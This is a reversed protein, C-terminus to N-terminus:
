TEGALQFNIWNSLHSFPCEFLLCSENLWHVASVNNPSVLKRKRTIRKRSSIRMNTIEDFVGLGFTQTLPSEAGDFMAYAGAIQIWQAGSASFLRARAEVFGANTQAEAREIKQSLTKDSFITMRNKKYKTATLYERVNRSEFGARRRSKKTNAM